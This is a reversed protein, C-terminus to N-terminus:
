NDKKTPVIFVPITTDHLVKATVSGMIINTLWNQSHSGIVIIDMDLDKAAKLINKASDGEEVMTHITKDGLHQRMKDLFKLSAKKLVDVSDEQLTAATEAADMEGAFGMITVHGPSTYIVPDSIVHLLIVEAGMAKSMSHGTEAVKQASPDYDLAILVKNM